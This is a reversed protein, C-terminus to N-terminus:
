ELRWALTFADADNGKVEAAYIQVFAARPPSANPHTVLVENDYLVQQGDGGILGILEGLELSEGQLHRGTRGLIVPQHIRTVTISTSPDYSRLDEPVEMSVLAKLKTLYGPLIIGGEGPVFGQTFTRRKMGHQKEPDLTFTVGYLSPRQIEATVVYLGAM